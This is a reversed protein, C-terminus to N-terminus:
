TTHMALSMIMTISSAAGTWDVPIESQLCLALAYANAPMKTDWISATTM